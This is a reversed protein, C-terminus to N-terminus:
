TVRYMKNGRLTAMNTFLKLNKLGCDRGLISASVSQFIRMFNTYVHLKKQFINELFTDGSLPLM